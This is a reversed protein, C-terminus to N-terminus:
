RKTNKEEFVIGRKEPISSDIFRFYKVEGDINITGTGDNNMVATHHKYNMDKFDVEWYPKDNIKGSYATSLIHGRYSDGRRLINESACGSSLLLIGALIATLTSKRM